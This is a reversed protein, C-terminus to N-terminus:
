YDDCNRVQFYILIETSDRFACKCISCAASRVEIGTRRSGAMITSRHGQSDNKRKRGFKEMKGVIPFSSKWNEKTYFVRTIDVVIRKFARRQIRSLNYTREVRNIAKALRKELPRRPFRTEVRLFIKMKWTKGTKTYEFTSNHSVHVRSLSM